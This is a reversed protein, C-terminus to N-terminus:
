RRKSIPHRRRKKPKTVTVRGSAIANAAHDSVSYGVALRGPKALLRRGAGNLPVTVAVTVGAGIAVVRGGVSTTRGHTTASLAITGECGRSASACALKLTVAGIRGSPSGILSLSLNVFEEVGASQSGTLNADGAYAAQIPHSGPTAYSVSCTAQGSAAAIPAAGCGPITDGGDLFAVTGGDPIPSVKATYTLQQGTVSPNASTSLSTKTGNPGTQGPANVIEALTPSTSGLFSTDGSYIAVIAHSGPGGYAAQCTALGTAADVRESGCGTITTGNDTFTVSGGDPAPTITATYTVQAGATSPNASSTLATATGGQNITESLPASTSGLYRTDGEYSALIPHTGISTYTAQCTAVGTTTDVQVANCQPIAGRGDTFSVVGGDPVPSVRATYTVIQGTVPNPPVSTLSTTTLTGNLVDLMVTVTNSDLGTSADIAKYNFTDEGIFGPPPTYTFSGDSMLNVQVNKQNTFVSQGTTDYAGEVLLQGHTPTTDTTLVGRSSDITLPANEQVNYSIDSATPGAALEVAGIECGTGQPRSVGRQDIPNAGLFSACTAPPIADRAPSAAMPQMAFTTYRKGGNTFLEGHNSDLAPGVAPGGGGSPAGYYDLGTGNPGGFLGLRPDVPISQTGVQDGTATFLSACGQGNGILNYGGDTFAAGGASDCDPDLQGGTNTLTDQAIVSGDVTATGGNYFGGGYAGADITQMCGTDDFTLKNADITSTILTLTGTPANDIGGGYAAGPGCSGGPDSQASNGYVTLNEASLTGGNYIGGGQNACSRSVNDGTLTLQGANYIGGGDGVCSPITNSDINSQSVTATAGSANYIGAGGASCSGTASNGFLYSNTVTLTGGNYIGGGLGVPAQGGGCSGSGGNTADNSTFLDDAVTASAGAAVYLGGGEGALGPHLSSTSDTNALHVYVNELTVTAGSSVELVRGLRKGGTGQESPQLVADAGPAGELTLNKTISYVTLGDGHDIALESCTGSILLTDGPTASTIASRLAAGAGNDGDSTCDVQTIAAAAPGAGLCCVAAALGAGLAARLGSGV